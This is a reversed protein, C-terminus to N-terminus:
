KKTLGTQEGRHLNSITPLAGRPRTLIKRTVAQRHSEVPLRDLAGNGLLVTPVFLCGVALWVSRPFFSRVDEGSQERRWAVNVLLAVIVCPAAGIWYVLTEELPRYTIMVALLAIVGALPWLLLLRNVRRPIEGSDTSEPGLRGIQSQQIEDMGHNIDRTCGLGASFSSQQRANSSRVASPPRGWM